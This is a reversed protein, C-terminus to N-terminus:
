ERPSGGPERLGLAQQRWGGLSLDGWLGRGSAGLMWKIGEAPKVVM